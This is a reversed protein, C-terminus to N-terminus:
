LMGQLYGSKELKKLVDDAIEKVMERQSAIMEPPLIGVVKIVRSMFDPHDRLAKKYKEREEPTTVCYYIGLKEESGTLLEFITQRGVEELKKTFTAKDWSPDNVFTPPHWKPDRFFGPPLDEKQEPIPLTTLKSWWSEPPAIGMEIQKKRPLLARQMQLLERRDEDAAAREETVYIEGKALTPKVPTNKLIGKAAANIQNLIMDQTTSEHQIPAYVQAMKARVARPQQRAAMARAQSAPAESPVTPTPIPLAYDDDPPDSLGKFKRYLLYLGVGALAYSLTSLGLPNKSKRSM